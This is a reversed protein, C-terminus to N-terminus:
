SRLFVWTGGSATAVEAVEKSFAAHSYLEAETEPLKQM